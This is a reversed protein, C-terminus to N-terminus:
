PCPYLGLIITKCDEWSIGYNALDAKDRIEIPAYYVTEGNDNTSTRLKISLEITTKLNGTNKRDM